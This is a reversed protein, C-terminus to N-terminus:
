LEDGPAALNAMEQEKNEANLDERDAPIDEQAKGAQTVDDAEAAEDAKIEDKAQAADDAEAQATEDARAEGEAQAAEGEKMEDKQGTENAEAEAAEDTENRAESAENAVKAEVAEEAEKGAQAPIGTEVTQLAEAPVDPDGIGQMDELSELNAVDEMKRISEINERNMEELEAYLADLKSKVEKSDEKLKRLVEKQGKYFPYNHTDWKKVPTMYNPGYTRTLAQHYDIPVPITINEFPLRVSERYWNKDRMSGVYARFETADPVFSMNAVSGSEEESFLSYLRDMLQAMQKPIDGKRDIKTRCNEEVSQMIEEIVDLHGPNQQVFSSVYLVDYLLSIITDVEDNPEGFGPLYDLPFVDVGVVYPCGHFRTLREVSTSLSRGNVLRSFPQSWDSNDYPHLYEWDPPIEKSVVQAFRNYDERKMGIDLDDDWPIFGNHRVAGLLTGSDAFYTIGYKQCIRDIETVVELEAAWACKMESAVFFGDRVEGEFFERKFELM